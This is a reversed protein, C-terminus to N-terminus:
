NFIVARTDSTMNETVSLKGDIVVVRDYPVDGNIEKGDWRHPWVNDAWMQRILIEDEASILPYNAEAQIAKVKDLFYARSEMTLPGLNGGPKASWTGDTKLYPMVKRKRHKALRMEAYLATLKQLPKLYAWQPKKILYEFAWDREVIECAICGTRIDGGDSMEEAVYVDAIDKTIPYPNDDSYLWRWVHCVRWHVLPALKDGKASHYFWGQGCEGGNKSCSVSIREDRVASEGQRVGILTLFKEGTQAAYQEVAADMPDGKLIRTCWRRGRTPPQMGRGLIQVWFGYEPRVIQVRIGETELQKLFAHATIALPPLEMQTDAYLVTLTKPKQVKGTQIAWATFSLTASSDKGGSYAVVWHEYQAAYANLSALSIEISTQYDMGAGFLGRRNFERIELWEPIM